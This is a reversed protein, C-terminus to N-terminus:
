ASFMVLCCYQGTSVSYYTALTGQHCFVSLSESLSCLYLTNELCQEFDFESLSESLSRPVTTM